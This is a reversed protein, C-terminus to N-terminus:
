EEFVRKRLQTLADAPSTVIFVEGKWNHHFDREAQTLAQASPPKAGDKIEIMYNRGWRGAVIDPFGNGVGHTPAVSYGANRLAKVIEGQNADVKAARRM